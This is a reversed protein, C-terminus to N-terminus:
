GRAAHAHASPLAPPPSQAARAEAILRVGREIAADSLNAYGFVLAPPYSASSFRQASMGYVQVGRTRAATVLAAEDVGDPLVALLSLGAAIGEIRADPLHRAIARVLADRRARYRARMRRLHRDLAGGSVMEALALHEIAPPGGDDHAREDVVADHISAPLLLWGIRLGPALIKSASGAYVVRDPALGQLAGVPGRDYRYEADYDDEIVLAGRRTAWELLEGRREPALVVGTPSQHAPTVLVADAAVQELRDTRLGRGDVPVRVTDLGAHRAVARLAIWSPDEVALTRAGAACLARCVLALGHLFGTTVLMREPDAVVGRSRGLWQALAGRLEAAGRMDGYGLAADPAQALARRLARSWEARPFSALDPMGPHFDVRLPPQRPQVTAGAPAVGRAAAVRTRGGPRAALYGEACLQAYAEVVVGRSVGVQAALERSGPLPTAPRLRGARVADRLARELQMHLSTADRRDVDLLLEM